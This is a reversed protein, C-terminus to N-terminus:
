ALFLCSVVYGPIAVLYITSVILWFFIMKVRWNGRKFLNKSVQWLLEIKTSPLALTAYLDFPVATLEVVRLLADSFVRYALLTLIGQLGRGVVWNWVLDIAKAEGFTFKRFPVLDIGVFSWGGSVACDFQFPAISEVQIIQTFGYQSYWGPLFTCLFLIAFISGHRAPMRWYGLDRSFLMHTKYFAKPPLYGSELSGKQM